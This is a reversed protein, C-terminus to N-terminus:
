SAPVLATLDVHLEKALRVAVPTSANRAGREIDALYQPSITRRVVRKPRGTRDIQSM